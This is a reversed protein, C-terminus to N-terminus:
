IAGVPASTFYGSVPVGARRAAVVTGVAEDSLRRAGPAEVAARTSHDAIWVELGTERSVESSRALAATDEMLREDGPRVPEAYHLAVVDLAQECPSEHVAAVARALARELPVAAAVRRRLLREVARPRPCGQEYRSRRDLLWPRLEHRSIGHSRSLLVDVVLRDLEYVSLPSTSAAVVGHPQRAKLTEYALVHAALMHDLARVTAAVDLRRGPPWRGLLYSQIAQRNMASITLWQSARGAFREVAIEVWRQFREPADPQLWFDVGLWAPHGLHHLVVLPRLKRDHCADLIRAYHDLASQDVTGDVPECRAWEVTVGFANCGAAVAADLHHEYGHWFGPSAAVPAARRQAEWWLWNNAPQGRGNYGGEAQFGAMAVGFRFRAPLDLDTM